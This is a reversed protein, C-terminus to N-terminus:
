SMSGMSDLHFEDGVRRVTAARELRTVATPPFTFLSSLKSVQTNMLTGARFALSPALYLVGTAEEVFVSLWGSPDRVLPSSAEPNRDAFGRDRFNVRFQDKIGSVREDRTPDTFVANYNEEFPIRPIEQPPQQISPRDLNAPASSKAALTAAQNARISKLVPLFERVMESTERLHDDLIAMRRDQEEERKTMASAHPQPAPEQKRALSKEQAETQHTIAAILRDFRLWLLVLLVCVAILLILALTALVPQAYTLADLWRFAAWVNALLMAPVAPPHALCEVM